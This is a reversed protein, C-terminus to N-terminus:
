ESERIIGYDDQQHIVEEADETSAARLQMDIKWTRRGVSDARLTKIPRKTAV